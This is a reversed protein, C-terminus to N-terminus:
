RGDNPREIGITCQAGNYHVASLVGCGYPRGELFETHPVVDLEVREGSERIEEGREIMQSGLKTCHDRAIARAADEHLAVGECRIRASGRTTVAPAQNRMDFGPQSRRRCGLRKRFFPKAPSNRSQGVNMKGRRVSCSAVQTCLPDQGRCNVVRAVGSDVTKAPREVSDLRAPPLSLGAAITHKDREMPSLVVIAIGVNNAAREQPKRRQARFQRHDQRNVRVRADGLRNPAPEARM